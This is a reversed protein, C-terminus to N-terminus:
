VDPGCERVAPPPPNKLTCSGYALAM